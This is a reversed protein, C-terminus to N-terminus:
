RLMYLYAAVHRAEMLSIGTNPMATKPDIPRPDEIWQILTTPTNPTVGAIYLRAAGGQLNPGVKGDAGPVGPISQCGACGYRHVLQRGLDPNGATLAVARARAEKSLKAQYGVYIGATAVMVLALTWFIARGSLRTPAPIRIGRTHAEPEFATRSVRSM